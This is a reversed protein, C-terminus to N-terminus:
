CEECGVTLVAIVAVLPCAVAGALSVAGLTGQLTSVVGAGVTDSGAPVGQRQLEDLLVGVALVDARTQIEHLGGLLVLGESEVVVLQSEVDVEGLNLTTEVRGQVEDGHVGITALRLVRGVSGTGLETGSVAVSLASTVELENTALHSQKRGIVEKFSSQGSSKWALTSQTGEVLSGLAPTPLSPAQQASISTQYALGWQSRRGTSQCIWVELSDLAWENAKM